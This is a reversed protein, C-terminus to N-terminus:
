GGMVLNMLEEPLKGHYQQWRQLAESTAQTTAPSGVRPVQLVNHLPVRVVVDGSALNKQAILGRYGAANIGIAAERVICADELSSLWNAALPTTLANPVQTRCRRHPQVVFPTRVLELSCHIGCCSQM